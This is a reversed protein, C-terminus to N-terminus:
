QHKALLQRIADPIPTKKLGGDSESALRCCVATMSGEAILQDDRTFRFRYEVSTSGIRAVQVSISLIDEFRAASAYDCSAAVRPWTVAPLDQDSTPLVSIGLERLLEHEASEMMPFFASFHVIGAADTDRFEVRRQTSFTMKLQRTVTALFLGNLRSVCSATLQRGNVTSSDVIRRRLADSGHIPSRKIAATVAHQSAATCGSKRRGVIRGQRNVMKKLLEVDKYDVYMPRPRHGDVFIPDKKRTRSRVRTRKRARSRTSMPRPPM